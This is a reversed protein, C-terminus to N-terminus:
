GAIPKAAQRFLLAALLWLGTFILNLILIGVPGPPDDAGLGAALAVITVLAQAVGTALLAVAMGGARFHAVVVGGFMVVLVGAYMLNAPDGEDGIIGVAMNVWILLFMAVIAIGAGARYFIGNGIRAALEFMGSCSFLLTGIIIFDALDWKVEDTFQMAVAPLLLLAVPIGWVLIRWAGLGKERSRAETTM